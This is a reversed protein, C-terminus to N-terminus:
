IFRGGVVKIPKGDDVDAQGRELLDLMVAFGGAELVAQSIAGAPQTPRAKLDHDDVFIEAERGSGGLAAGARLPQDCFDTEAM